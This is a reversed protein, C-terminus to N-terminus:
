VVLEEKVIEAKRAKPPPPRASVPRIRSSTTKQFIPAEEETEKEVHETALVPELKQKPPPVIEEEETEEESQEQQRLPEERSAVNSRSVPVEPTVQIEEQEVSQSPDFHQGDLVKEVASIYDAQTTHTIYVLKARFFNVNKLVAKALLQLFANTDEPDLGAIIKYPNAKSQVGTM